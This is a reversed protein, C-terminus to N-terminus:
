LNINLKEQIKDQFITNVFSHSFRFWEESLTKKEEKSAMMKIHSSVLDIKTMKKESDFISNVHLLFNERFVWTVWIGLTM